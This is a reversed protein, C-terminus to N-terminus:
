DENGREKKKLAKLMDHAVKLDSPTADRAADFLLRLDSDHLILHAMERTEANIYYYDPKSSRDEILDSKEIGFYKALLEVNGMRPMKIGNTWNSVTSFPIGLDNVLAVAQKNNLELFYNLNESFVRKIEEEPMSTEEQLSITITYYALLSSLDVILASIYAILTSVEGLPYYCLTVCLTLSSTIIFFIENFDARILASNVCFSAISTYISM